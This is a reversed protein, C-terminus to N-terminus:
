TRCQSMNSGPAWSHCVDLWSAQKMAKYFIYGISIVMTLGITVHITLRYVFFATTTEGRIVLTPLQGARADWASSQASSLAVIQM